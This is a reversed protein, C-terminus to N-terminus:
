VDIENEDLVELPEQESDLDDLALLEVIREETKSSTPDDDAPLLNQSM